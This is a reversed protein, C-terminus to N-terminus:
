YHATVLHRKPLGTRNPVSSSHRIVLSLHDGDPVGRLGLFGLVATLGRLVGRSTPSKGSAPFHGVEQIQLSYRDLLRKFTYLHIPSIHTPDSLEDFQKLKGLLLFRLRAELSHINPTTMVFAGNPALVRAIESVLTGLNEVHEFVEISTILAFSGNAYPMGGTDLDFESFSIAPLDAAPARIDVGSLSKYGAEQMRMLFAGTGCGVDLIPSQKDPAINAVVQMVHLHLGSNAREVLKM